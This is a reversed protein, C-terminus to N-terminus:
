FNEEFIGFAEWVQLEKRFFDIINFIRNFFEGFNWRSCSIEIFEGLRFIKQFHIGWWLRAFYEAFLWFSKKEFHHPDFMLSRISFDIFSILLFIRMVYRFLSFFLFRHRPRNVTSYGSRQNEKSFRYQLM